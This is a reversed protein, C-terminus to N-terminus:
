SEAIRTGRHFCLRKGYRFLCLTGGMVLIGLLLNRQDLTKGSVGILISELLLSAVLISSAASLFRIFPGSKTANLVVSMLIGFPFFIAIHYVVNYLTMSGAEPRYFYSVAAAGPNLALVHANQVADIYVTLRSGDYTAVVAHSDGSGFVGPITLEPNVGNEGTMPTRLRFVLANGQQGLTFNRHSTDASLSVIRAPGTQEISASAFTVGLTFQSKAAIRSILYSAPVETELWSQSNLSKPGPQHDNNEAGRWVLDPLNGMKDRYNHDGLLAYSALVPRSIGASHSMRNLWDEAERKSLTRSDLNLQSVRGRWPRKGTHENGLLLSYNEDWNHLSTDRQLPISILYALAVYGILSPRVDQKDWLSFCAFGSFAGVTNCVVDILSSFRSSLFGQLVELICSFGFGFAVTIAMAWVAPLGVGRMLFAALAFGLPAYLLINGVIEWGREMGAAFIPRNGGSKSSFDQFSFDFPFLTVILIFTLSLSVLIVGARHKLFIYM